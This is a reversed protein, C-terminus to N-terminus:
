NMKRQSIRNYNLILSKLSIDFEVDDMPSCLM